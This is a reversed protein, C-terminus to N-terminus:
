GACRAVRRKLSAVIAADSRNTRCRLSRSRSIDFVSGLDYARTKVIRGSADVRPDPM